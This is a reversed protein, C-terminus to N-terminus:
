QKKRDAAALIQSPQNELFERDEDDKLWDSVQGIKEATEYLASYILCQKNEEDIAM